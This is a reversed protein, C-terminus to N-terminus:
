IESEGLGYLNDFDRVGSGRAIARAKVRAKEVKRILKWKKLRGMGRFRRLFLHIETDWAWLAFFVVGTWFFPNILLFEISKLPSLSEYWTDLGAILFNTAYYLVFISKRIYWPTSFFISIIIVITALIITIPVVEFPLSTLDNLDPVIRVALLATILSIILATGHSKVVKMLITVIIFFLLLFVFIEKSEILKLLIGWIILVTQVISGWVFNFFSIEAM